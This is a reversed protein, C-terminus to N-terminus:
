DQRPTLHAYLPPKEWFNFNKQKLWGESRDSIKLDFSHLVRALITRMEVYALNRGICNRPGVHFPQLVERVDDTFEEDGLFREPRYEFPKKFYKTSHYMAWHHISVNTGEPVFTDCVTAGGAPVDRPIGSAVPPYCRLAENLCALMYPLDNVSNFNIDDESKFVSRVEDTAKKLAIPDKMLYYTVGALVTATTESGAIILIGANAALKEESIGWEDKRAVLGNILDPRENGVAMRRRIKAVAMDEHAVMDKSVSKPVCWLLFDRVKPFSGLSQIITGARAMTFILEVWPHTTSNELCGFPEGFALDGIIDFTTWNYWACVDLETEGNRCNEHLRQILLDIYKTILPQQERMGKDSFGNALTRRLMSHEERDANIIHVPQEKIPRSFWDSKPFDSQGKTRHGQIDQWSSVTSFALENPGIRVIDGYKEHLGLMDFPLTGRTSHFIYGFRTARMYLPGPFRSLPHLWINYIVSAAVYVNVSVAVMLASVGFSPMTLFGM